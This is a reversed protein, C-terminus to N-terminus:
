RMGYIHHKQIIGERLIQPPDTTIDVVTSLVGQRAPGGDLLLDLNEGFTHAVAQPTQCPRAGSLNASTGTIPRGIERALATPVPHSSLRIGIKGQGATLLPSVDSAADFVLTLGGPWFREMLRQAVPPIRNVYRHLVDICSILILIPREASRGKLDFVRQIARENTADAALGYVSETPCAVLGGSLLIEGARKLSAHRGAELDLRLM